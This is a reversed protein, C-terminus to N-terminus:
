ILLKGTGDTFHGLRLPSFLIENIVYSRIAKSSKLYNDVFHELDEKSKVYINIRADLNGILRYVSHVNPLKAFEELHSNVNKSGQEFTLEISYYRFGLTQYNINGNIDLVKEELLRNLRRMITSNSIGLSKAIESIQARGNNALIRIIDIDTKELELIPV